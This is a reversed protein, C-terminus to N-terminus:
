PTWTQLRRTEGATSATAQQLDAIADKFPQGLQGRALHARAKELARKGAGTSIRLAAKVDPELKVDALARATLVDALQTIADVWDQEAAFLAARADSTAEIEAIQDGVCGLSVSAAAVAGWTLAVVALGARAARPTM